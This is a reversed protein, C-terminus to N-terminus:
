IRGDAYKERLSRWVRRWGSDAPDDGDPRCFALFRDPRVPKWYPDDDRQRASPDYTLIWELNNLSHEDARFGSREFLLRLEEAPLARVKGVMRDFALRQCNPELALYGGPIGFLIRGQRALVVFSNISFMAASGHAHVEHDYLARPVWENRGYFTPYDCLACKRQRVIIDLLDHEAGAAHACHDRLQTWQESLKNADTVFDCHPVICRIDYHGMYWHAPWPLPDRRM